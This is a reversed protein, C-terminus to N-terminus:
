AQNPEGAPRRPTTPPGAHNAQRANLTTAERVADRRAAFSCRIDGSVSNVVAWGGNTAPHVEYPGDCYIITTPTTETM